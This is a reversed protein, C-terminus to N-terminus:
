KGRIVNSKEKLAELYCETKQCFSKLKGNEKFVGGFNDISLVCNCFSCTLRGNKMGELLGIKQLFSNVDADHVARIKVKGELQVKM